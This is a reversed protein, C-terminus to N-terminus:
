WAFTLYLLGSLMPWFSFTHGDGIGHHSFDVAMRRQVPFRDLLDIIGGASETLLIAILLLVGVLILLQLVDSYIVGKIGGLVDYLVTFLGLLLVARFFGVGTILDIVIAISYVTVATAFARVFMFLGSLILSTALNFRQELYQYVTVLQLKRFMPLFVLKLVIMALPVALEYQLWVLGGRSAFAVFAPAGLISNTSRQTAMISITIPWSGMSRHGVSYDERSYQGRSLSWAMAILGLLYASIILWDFANILFCTHM